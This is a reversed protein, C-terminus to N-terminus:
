HYLDMITGIEREREYESTDKAAVELLSLDSADEKLDLTREKVLCM